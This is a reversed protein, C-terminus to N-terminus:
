KRETTIAATAITIPLILPKTQTKTKPLDLLRRTPTRMRTMATARAIKITTPLVGVLLLRDAM